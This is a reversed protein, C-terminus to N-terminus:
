SSQGASMAEQWRGVLEFYHQQAEVFDRRELAEVSMRILEASDDLVLDGDSFFHATTGYDLELMGNRPFSEIWELLEAIEGSISQDFGAAEVASLARQVRRVAPEVSARYRVGIQGPGDLIEKEEADFALFWRPPVHWASTLIHSRTNPSESFIRDLEDAAIRATYEPIVYASGMERYAAHFAIVGQLM